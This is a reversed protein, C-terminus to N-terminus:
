YIIAKVRQPLAGYQLSLEKVTEGKLYRRYLQEKAFPSMRGNFRSEQKEFSELMFKELDQQKAKDQYDLGKRAANFEDMLNTSAINEDTISKFTNEEDSKRIREGEDINLKRIMNNYNKLFNDDGWDDKGQDNEETVANKEYREYNGYEEGKKPM